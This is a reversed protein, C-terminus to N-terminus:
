QGGAEVEKGEYIKPDRGYVTTADLLRALVHDNLQHPVFRWQWNGVARGPLNMRAETGLDLVDQLPVVAMRAVSRFAGEILTWAVDSGDTRFYRRFFDRERETSSTTYWGWATDNDHTGSYVVFNPTYNHPLFKDSADTSFAFQLIKMGPLNFQNRLEIVDPTIEGLDEAIIPLDGLEKQVVQFFDAGPGKVWRGNVATKEEAPVEWYGAFGRFHDIRVIDYLRLAARIRKLWWQYGQRKMTDWRYIPNGWLQGTESFYDPPVGAVVTPQYDEDFHFGQPNSWTDASDLAVYIPIDGIIKVGRQNAYAKLNLWQRYFLWQSFKHSYIADALENAAKALAAKHRSRLSMDWQNWAADGNADKLAMFLAFDDLWDANDDCFAEFEAKYGNDAREAFATAAQRLVPLKWRYIAGFDVHSDPFEPADDLVHQSLLGEEVLDELSILYPNGAFSSFSQYPSDGYGTPGLPLVQWLTQRTEALLDVWDYATQNFTGIGYRGPLSTPHLLIGSRRTQEM